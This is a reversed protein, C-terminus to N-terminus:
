SNKEGPFIILKGGFYGAVGGAALAVLHLGVYVWRGSGYATGALPDILRWLVVILLTATVIVACIIKTKFVPTMNGGFRHQWDVWGAYVVLPMALVVVLANFFSAQILTDSGTLIGLLLFLVSVPLVGNPIHVAIPHGHLEVLKSEIVKRLSPKDESAAEAAKDPASTPTTDTTTQASLSASSEPASPPEDVIEFKTADAGCVPCSDPPTPGTHIYGCITCRWKTDPGGEPLPAPDATKGTADDTSPLDIGAGCVPCKHDEVSDESLKYGCVSCQLEAM